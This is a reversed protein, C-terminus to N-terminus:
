SRPSSVTETLRLALSRAPHSSSPRGTSSRVILDAELRASKIERGDVVADVLAEAAKVGMDRAPVAVTTLPPDLLAAFDVDDFGTVSLDEPVQDRVQAM